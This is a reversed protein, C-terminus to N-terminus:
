KKSKNVEKTYCSYCVSKYEQDGVHIQEGNAILEGNIYLLHHTSKDNCFDCQMKLEQLSFGCEIAKKSGEFLEGTYSMLLGYAFVPIDLDITIMALEEVQLPTFFQIEDVFVFDPNTEKTISHMKGNENKSIQIAKRKDELARSKIYDGDRTDIAPKFIVFTKGQREFNFTQMLIQASKSANMTGHFLKRKAL